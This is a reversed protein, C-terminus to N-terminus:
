NKLKHSTSLFSIIFKRAASRVLVSGGIMCLNSDRALYSYSGPTLGTFDWTNGWAGDNFQLSICM